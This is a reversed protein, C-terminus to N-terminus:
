IFSSSIYCFSASCKFLSGPPNWGLLVPAWMRSNFCRNVASSAFSAVCNVRLWFVAFSIASFVFWGSSLISFWSSVITIFPSIKEVSIPSVSYWADGQIIPIYSNWTFLRVSSNLVSRLSYQLVISGLSFGHSGWSLVMGILSLISGVRSISGYSCTSINTSSFSVKATAGHM